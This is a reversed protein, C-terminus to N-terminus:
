KPKTYKKLASRCGEYWWRIQYLRMAAVDQGAFDSAVQLMM